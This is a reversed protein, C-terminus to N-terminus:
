PPLQHHPTYDYFAISPVFLHRNRMCSPKIVPISLVTAIPTKGTNQTGHNQFACPSAYAQLNFTLIAGSYTDTVEDQHRNM